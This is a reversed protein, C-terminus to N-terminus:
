RPGTGELAIAARVNSVHAAGATDAQEAEGALVAAAIRRYDALRMKQLTPLRHQAHVIPMHIAPFLRKLERNGGMELLARYFRRRAASFAAGDRAKDAAGLEQVIKKLTHAQVADGSGRAATRALLGTMREAVDLVDLTDQLSLSRIAAGKHRLLEVIGEAALRQLAERVSNRGVGFQAVLDAEVLRQGPVFTQVDLGRVIGLFVIDSASGGDVESPAAPGIPTALITPTPSITVARNDTM